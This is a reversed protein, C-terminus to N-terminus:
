MSPGSSPENLIGPTSDHIYGTIKDANLYQESLGKLFPVQEIFSKVVAITAQIGNNDIQSIYGVGITALYVIPIFLLITMLFTTIVATIRPSDTYQNLKHTLNFTAMALLIAVTMSLIFPQYVSYAGIIALIFLATIMLSTKNM